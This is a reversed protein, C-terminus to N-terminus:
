GHSVLRFLFGDMSLIGLQPSDMSLEILLYKEQTDKLSKM